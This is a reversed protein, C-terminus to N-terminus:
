QIITSKKGRIRKVIIFLILLVNAVLFVCSIPRTVFILYSGSSLMLTRRFNKEILSGLVFALVFSPHSFKLKKMFYGFIGAIIAVWVDMMMRRAAYAGILSILLILTTLMYNPIVLLRAYISTTLRGFVFMLCTALLLGWFISNVLDLETRLLNPGPQIGQM